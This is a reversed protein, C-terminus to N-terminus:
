GKGGMDGRLRALLLVRTPGSPAYRRIEWNQISRVSIGLVAAADGQSLKKVRRWGKLIEVFDPERPKSM